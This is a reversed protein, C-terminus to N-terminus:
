LVLKFGDALRNNVGCIFKDERGEKETNVPFTFLHMFSHLLLSKFSFDELIIVTVSVM